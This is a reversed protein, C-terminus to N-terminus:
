HLLIWRGACDIVQQGRRNINTSGWTTHYVNVDCGVVLHSGDARCGAVLREVEKPPPPEPDDYPLYASGLIIERPGKDCSKRIKVM